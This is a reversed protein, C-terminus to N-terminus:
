GLHRRSLFGASTARFMTLSMSTMYISHKCLTEVIIRPLCFPCGETRGIETRVPLPERPYYHKGSKKVASGIEIFLTAASTM